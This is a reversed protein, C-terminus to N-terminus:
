PTTTTALTPREVNCGGIAYLKEVTAADAPVLFEDTQTVGSFRLITTEKGGPGPIIGIEDPRTSDYEPTAGRERTWPSDELCTSSHKPDLIDGNGNTPPVIYTREFAHLPAPNWRANEELATAIRKAKSSDDGGGAYVSLTILGAALTGWGIVHLGIKRIRKRRQMRGLDTLTDSEADDVIQEAARYCDDPSPLSMAM